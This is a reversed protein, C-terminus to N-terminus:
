PDEKMEEESKPWTWNPDNFPPQRYKVHIEPKIGHHQYGLKYDDFSDRPIEPAGADPRRLHVPVPLYTPTSNHLAAHGNFGYGKPSFYVELEKEPFAVLGPYKKEWEKWNIPEEDIEEERSVRTAWLKPDPLMDGPPVWGKEIKPLGATLGGEPPEELSLTVRQNQADIQAVYVEISQNAEFMEPTKGDGLLSAPLLADRRGLGVDVFVGYDKSMRVVGQIKEGVELDDMSIRGADEQSSSAGEQGVSLKNNEPDATAVKLDTLEEGVTYEGPEKVLLRSPALADRSAGIDVFVGFPMIRTVTGKVEDGVQFDAPGPRDSVSLRNRVPDIEAVKLGTIKDGVKYESFPKPLQSLPWLADRSAGIDLFVGYAAARKVTGEVVTGVKLESIDTTEEESMSALSEPTGLELQEADIDIKTIILGELEDGEKYETAPKPLAKTRLLADKSAGIDIFLGVPDVRLVKGTVTAGRVLQSLPTGIEDETKTTVTIREGDVKTVILDAVEGKSYEEIPKSLLRTPGLVDTALGADFFIGFTGVTAVTGELKEGEKVESALRRPSVEVQSKEVNVSSVKLGAINDGEKYEGIPRELQNIRLLADRDAGINVFLGFQANILSVVGDVKDGVKLSSIARFKGGQPAKTKAELDTTVSVRDGQISEVKLMVTEGQKYEKGEKSLSRNPALVDTTAGIDFFVGFNSVRVVTGEYTNGVVLESPAIKSTVRIKRQAPTDGTSIEYIKLGPIKDGVKFSQGKPVQMKPWLAEKEAGIDVWIGINAVRTVTGEFEDGVNLDELKKARCLTVAARPRQASRRSAGALSVVAALAFVAAGAGAVRAARAGEASPWLSVAPPAVAGASTGCMAGAPPLPPSLFGLGAEASGSDVGLGAAHAAALMGLMAVGGALACRRRHRLAEPEHTPRLVMGPHGVM